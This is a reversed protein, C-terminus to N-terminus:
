QSGGAIPAAHSAMHVVTDFRPAISLDHSVCVLASKARACAEFVVDMAADANAEDLSATPEDALVLTPGCAVARAVAVRQRQGVSLHEVKADPRSIGLQELLAAARPRHERHAVRSFMLAALVNEIASFGQLLNFTQFIMGVHEARFLDRAAGSLAHVRTGAIDVEGRTPDDLGAILTLLTSKGIGSPGAVLVREGQRVSLDPAVLDFREGGSEDRPSTGPYRFRVGRVRLAPADSSNSGSPM